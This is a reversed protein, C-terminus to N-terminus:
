RTAGTTPCAAVATAQSPHSKCWSAQRAQGAFYCAVLLAFALAVNAM